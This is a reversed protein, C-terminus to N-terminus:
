RVLKRFARDAIPNDGHSGRLEYAPRTGAPRGLKHVFWAGGIQDIAAGEPRFPCGLYAPIEVAAVIILIGDDRILQWAATANAVLKDVTAGEIIAISYDTQRATRDLQASPHTTIHQAFWRVVPGDEIQALVRLDRRNVFRDLAVLWGAADGPFAETFPPVCSGNVIESALAQIEERTPAFPIATALSGLASAAHAALAACADLQVPTGEIRAVEGAFRVYAALLKATLAAPQLPAGTRLSGAVARMQGGIRRELQMAGVLGSLRQASAERAADPPTRLDVFCLSARVDPALPSLALEARLNSEMCALAEHQTSDLLRLRDNVDRREDVTILLSGWMLEADVTAISADRLSEVLHRQEDGGAPFRRDTNGDRDEELMATALLVGTDFLWHNTYTAAVAMWNRGLSDVIARVRGQQENSVRARGLIADAAAVIMRPSGACVERRGVLSGDRLALQYIQDGTLEGRDDFLTDIVLRQAISQFGLTAKWASAIAPAIRKGPRAIAACLPIAFMLSVRQYFAVVHGPKGLQPLDAHEEALWALVGILDEWHATTQALASANMPRSHEHRADRYSCTAYELTAQGGTGRRAHGECLPRGETDFIVPAHCLRRLIGVEGAAPLVPLRELNEIM